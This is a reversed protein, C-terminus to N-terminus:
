PVYFELEYFKRCNRSQKIVVFNCHIKSFITIEDYHCLLQCDHLMHTVSGRLPNFNILLKNCSAWEVVKVM